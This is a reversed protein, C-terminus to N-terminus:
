SQPTRTRNRKRALADDVIQRLEGSEIAAELTALDRYIADSCFRVVWNHVLPSVTVVAGRGHEHAEWMEIATGMSAEPIFAVVLDVARCMRNHSLFVQRGTEDDYELSMGHDAFPDYVTVGSWHRTFVHRLWTRYDQDHLVSERHSGQMIGALFVHLSM